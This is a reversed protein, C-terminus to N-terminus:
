RYEVPRGTHELPAGHEGCPLAGTHVLSDGTLKRRTAWQGFLPAFEGEVLVGPEEGEM